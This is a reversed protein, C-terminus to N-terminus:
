NIQNVGKVRDEIWVLCIVSSFTYRFCFLYKKTEKLLVCMKLIFFLMFNGSKLFLYPAQKSVSFLCFIENSQKIFIKGTFSLWLVGRVSAKFCQYLTLSYLYVLALTETTSESLLLGFKSCYKYAFAKNSCKAVSATRPLNAWRRMYIMKDSLVTKPGKHLRVRVWM